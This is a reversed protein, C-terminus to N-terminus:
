KTAERVTEIFLDELRRRQPIVGILKGGNSKVVDIIAYVQDEGQAFARVQGEEEDVDIAVSKLKDTIVAGGQIIVELMKGALLEELHGIRQLKGHDIIAIRDAVAEVDALQHSSLFVTKKEAKLRLILESIDRHAIPDLGSTPEDFFILDPDNILAQAIGIRQMMGKSYQSLRKKVDHKLGVLELLEGVKEKRQPKSFGFLQAYFDLVEPGTMHEYFYPNEPLYSIRRKVETDDVPKGFIMANGSTPNLLGLLIKITTTKGAGNPGLFGFIEGEHISITLNDVAIVSGGLYGKYRKTLGHIEIAEAM